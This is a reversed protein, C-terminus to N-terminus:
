VYQYLYRKIDIDISRYIPVFILYTDGHLVLADVIIPAYRAVTEIFDFSALCKYKPDDLPCM